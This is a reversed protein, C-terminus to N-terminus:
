DGILKFLTIVIKGFVLLAVTIALGEYKDIRM